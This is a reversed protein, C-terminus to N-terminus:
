ARDVPFRRDTRRRRSARRLEDLRGGHASPRVHHDPPLATSSVGAGVPDELPSTSTSGLLCRSAAWRVTASASWTPQDGGITERYNVRPKYFKVNLGFDRTLRHQIVELHLEGMGSIMTQGTEENEVARFTPDQRRLM